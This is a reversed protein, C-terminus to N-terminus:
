RSMHLSFVCPILPLTLSLFHEYMFISILFYMNCSVRQYTVCVVGEWLMLLSPFARVQALIAAALQLSPELTEPM